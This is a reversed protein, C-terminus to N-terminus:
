LLKSYRLQFQRAGDVELESLSLLPIPALPPNFEPRPDLDADIAPLFEAFPDAPAAFPRSGRECEEALVPSEPEDAPVTARM